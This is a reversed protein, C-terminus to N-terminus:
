YKGERMRQENRRENMIEYLLRTTLLSISLQKSTSTGIWSNLSEKMAFKELEDRNLDKVKFKLHNTILKIAKNKNMFVNQRADYYNKYLERKSMKSIIKEVRKKSKKMLAKESDMDAMLNVSSLIM